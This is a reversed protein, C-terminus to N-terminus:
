QVAIVRGAKEPQEVKPVQVASLRNDTNSSCAANLATLVGHMAALALFQATLLAVLLTPLIGDVEPDSAPVLTCLKQRTACRSPSSAM